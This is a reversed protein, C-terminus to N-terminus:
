LPLRRNPVDSWCIDGSSASLGHGRVKDWGRGRRAQSDLMRRWGSALAEPNRPEVVIGTDGVVHASDGSPTVVCARRCAMAEGIVNPFGEGFSSSLTAVDFASYAALM